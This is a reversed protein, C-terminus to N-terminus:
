LKRGRRRPPKTAPKGRAVPPEGLIDAPTKRGRDTRDFDADFSILTLDHKEAAVYQFADDFDLGTAGATKGVRIIDSVDLRVLGIAGSLLLDEAFRVFGAHMKRRLLLIGVSHISFETVALQQHPVEKLFREVEDARDQDLLFELLINTDLLYNV